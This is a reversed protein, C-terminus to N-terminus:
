CRDRSDTSTRFQRNPVEDSRDPGCFWSEDEDEDGDGDEVCRAPECVESGLTCM